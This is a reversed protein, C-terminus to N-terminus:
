NAVPFIRQARIESADKWDLNTASIGPMWEEVANNPYILAKLSYATTGTTNLGTTATLYPRGLGDCYEITTIKHEGGETLMTETQVYNQNDSQAFTFGVLHLLAGTITFKLNWKIM